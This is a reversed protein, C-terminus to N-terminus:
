AYMAHGCMHFMELLPAVYYPSVHAAVVTMSSCEKPNSVSASAAIDHQIHKPCLSAAICTHKAHLVACRILDYCPNGTMSHANGCMAAKAASAVPTCQCARGQRDCTGDCSVSLELEVPVTGLFDKTLCMALVYHLTNPIPFAKWAVHMHLPSTSPVASFGPM